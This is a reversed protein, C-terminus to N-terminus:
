RVQKVVYVRASCWVVRVSVSSGESRCLWCVFLREEIGWWVLV